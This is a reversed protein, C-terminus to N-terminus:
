WSSYWIDMFYVLMKWELVRWFKGWNSHQTQFYVMQCGRRQLERDYSQIWFFSSKVQIIEEIIDELTVLGITEYIPDGDESTVIDQVFAMHGPLGHSM